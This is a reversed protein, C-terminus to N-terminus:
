LRDGLALDTPGFVIRKRPILFIPYCLKHTWLTPVGKPPTPLHCGGARAVSALSLAVHATNDWALAAYSPLRILFMVATFAVALTSTWSETGDNVETIRMVTSSARSARDCFTFIFHSQGKISEASFGTYRFLRFIVMLM